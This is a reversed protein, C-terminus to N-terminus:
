PELQQELDLKQRKLDELESLLLNYQQQLQSTDRYIFYYTTAKHEFEKIRQEQYAIQQNIRDLEHNNDEKKSEYVKSSLNLKLGNKQINAENGSMPHTDNEGVQTVQEVKNTLKIGWQPDDKVELGLREAM